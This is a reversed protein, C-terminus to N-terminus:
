SMFTDQPQELQAKVHVLTLGALHADGATSMVLFTKSARELRLVAVDLTGGGLDYVVM